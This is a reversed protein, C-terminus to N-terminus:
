RIVGVSRLRQSVLQQPTALDYALSDLLPRGRMDTPDQQRLRYNGIERAAVMQMASRQMEPHAVPLGRLDTPDLQALKVNIYRKGQKHASAQIAKTKSRM